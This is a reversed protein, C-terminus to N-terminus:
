GCALMRAPAAVPAAIHRLRATRAAAAVSDDTSGISQSADDDEFALSTVSSPHQQRTREHIAAAGRGRRPDDASVLRPSAAAAVHLRRAAVGFRRKPSRRAGWTGWVLM